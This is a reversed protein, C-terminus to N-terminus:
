LAVNGGKAWSRVSNVLGQTSKSVPPLKVREGSALELSAPCGAEWTVTAISSREIASRRFNRVIVLQTDTLVVRTSLFDVFGAFMFLALLLAGIGWM